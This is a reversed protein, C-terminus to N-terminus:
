WTTINGTARIERLYGLAQTTNAAVVANGISVSSVVTTLVTNNTCWTQQTGSVVVAQVDNKNYGSGPNEVVIQEIVNWGQGQYNASQPYGDPYTGMKAWITAGIGTSSPSYIALVPTNSWAIPEGAVVGVAPDGLYTPVPVAVICNASYSNSPNIIVDTATVKIVDNLVRTNGADLEACIQYTGPSVNSFTYTGDSATNAWQIPDVETYEQWRQILSVVRNNGVTGGPLILQGSITQRSRRQKPLSIM